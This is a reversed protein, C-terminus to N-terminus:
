WFVMTARFSVIRTMASISSLMSAWPPQGCANWVPDSGATSFGTRNFTASDDGGYPWPPGPPRESSPRYLAKLLEPQGSRFPRRRNRQLPGTEFLRM